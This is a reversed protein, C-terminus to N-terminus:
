VEYQKRKMIIFSSLVLAVSLALLSFFDFGLVGKGKSVIGRIMPDGHSLPLIYAFARLFTPMSSIPIFIGSLLVIVIFFVFFLQNAETKTNSLTSIFIGLSVGVFGIMFLAVFLDWLSGRSYLGNGITSIMILIVQVLLILTYTIYKSLLLEEKKVPTLLLRAIPKEQVVVLITLVTSIGFIIFSLTLTINYNYKFNYNAPISFEQYGKIIFQPTLNNDNVFIKVADDIANLNDQVHVIDSSDPVAEVMAPFGFMLSESFEIPIVIIISIDGDILQQRAKEMAYTDESANYFHQLSLLESSNIADVLPYTYNDYETATYNNPNIFTNSDYSVVVCKVPPTAGSINMMFAFLWIILPPLVIAILLNIPDTKILRFEKIIMKKLRYQLTGVNFEKSKAHENHDSIQMDGKNIDKKSVTAVKENDKSM